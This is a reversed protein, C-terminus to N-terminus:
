RGQVLHALGLINLRMLSIHDVVLDLSCRHLQALILNSCKLPVLQKSGLALPALSQSDDMKLCPLGLKNKKLLLFVMSGNILLVFKQIKLKNTELCLSSPNLLCGSPNGCKLHLMALIFHNHLVM